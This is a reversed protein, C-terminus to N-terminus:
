VSVCVSNVQSFHYAAHGCFQSGPSYNRNVGYVWASEWGNGIPEVLGEDTWGGSSYAGTAEYSVTNWVTSKLQVQVNDVHISNDTIYYNVGVCIEPASSTCRFVNSDTANARATPAANAASAGGALAAGALVLPTVATAIRKMHKM